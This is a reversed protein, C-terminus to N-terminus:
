RSTTKLFEDRQEAIETYKRLYSGLVPEFNEHQKDLGLAYNLVEIARDVGETKFLSKALWMWGTTRLPDHETVKKYCAVAEPWRGTGMYVLGTEAYLEALGLKVKTDLDLSEDHRKDTPLFILAKHEQGDKICDLAQEYHDAAKSRLEVKSDSISAEGCGSYSHGAIYHALCNRPETELVALCEDLAREWLDKYDKCKDRINKAARSMEKDTYRYGLVLEAALNLRFANMESDCFLNIDYKNM